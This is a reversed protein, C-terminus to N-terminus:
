EDKMIRECERMMVAYEIAKDFDNDALHMAIAESLGTIISQFANVSSPKIADLVNAITTSDDTYESVIDFNKYRLYQGYGFTGDEFYLGTGNAFYDAHSDAAALVMPGVVDGDRTVYKKGVELKM